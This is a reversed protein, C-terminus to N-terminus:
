EYRHLQLPLLTPLLLEKVKDRCCRSFSQVLIEAAYSVAHNQETIRIDMNLLNYLERKLRPTLASFDGLKQAVFLDAVPRFPEIFDDVLNYANQESKHHIGKMPLFGYGAILRAIQGRLIAYGYNLAANRVDADDRRYFEKGFLGKFYAGAATAEVNHIDGSTVKGVMARLNAAETEHGTLELCIAQNQIKAQVIQKWLQKKTPLSMSEQAKLVGLHRSNQAFPLLIACPLHKEDCVYVTVDDEALRALTYLSIVSRQNELLVSNIDEIPVRHETDTVILLYNREIRIRAESAIMLNRYALKRM